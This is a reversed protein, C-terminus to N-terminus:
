KSNPVPPLPPIYTNQRTQTQSSPSTQGTTSDSISSPSTMKSTAEGAKREKQSNLNVTITDEGRVLMISEPNVKTLKYGAVTSGENVAVQRKGRGATSYPNKKDEIYAIRKEDTILTGYLIIEPRVVQQEEKIGSAIKRTPHFLNNEAIVVYDSYNVASEPEEIEESDEILEKAKPITFNINKYNLSDNVENFLFIATAILLLNLVNLNKLFLKIQNM